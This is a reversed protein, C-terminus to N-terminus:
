KRIKMKLFKKVILVVKIFRLNILSENINKVIKDDENQNDKYLDKVLFSPYHYNLM